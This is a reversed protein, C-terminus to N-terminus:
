TIMLMDCMSESEYMISLGGIGGVQVVCDGGFCCFEDVLEVVGVASGAVGAREAWLAKVVM